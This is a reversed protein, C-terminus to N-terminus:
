GGGSPRREPPEHGGEADGEPAGAAFLQQQQWAGSGNGATWWAPSEADDAALPSLAAISSGEDELGGSAGGGSKGSGGRRLRLPRLAAGGGHAWPLAALWSGGSRSPPDGDQRADRAGARRGSGGHGLSLAFKTRDLQRVAVLLDLVEPPAALPLRPPPSPPGDEDDGGDGRAAPAAPAPAPAAQQAALADAAQLLLAGREYWARLAPPHACVAALRAGLCGENLCGRLWLQLRLADSAGPARAARLKSATRAGTAVRPHAAGRSELALLVAFASLGGRPRGGGRRADPRAAATLGHSLVAALADLLAALQHGEQSSALLDADEGSVLAAAAAVERAARAADTALRLGSAVLEAHATAAAAAAAPDADADVSTLPTAGASGGGDRERGRRGKIARRAARLREAARGGRRQEEEEEQQQPQQQQGGNTPAEAAAADGGGAQSQQSGARAAGPPPRLHRAGLHRVAALPQALAENVSESLHQGGAKIGRLVGLMADVPAPVLLAAMASAAADEGGGAASASGARAAASPAGSDACAAAAAPPAGGGMSGSSSFVRSAASGVDALLSSPLAAVDAVAAAAGAAAASAAAALRDRKRVRPAARPPAGSLVQIDVRVRGEGNSGDGGSGGSLSSSSSGGEPAGSATGPECTLTVALPRGPEDAGSAAEGGRRPERGRRRRGSGGSSDAHVSGASPTKRLRGRRGLRLRGWGQEGDGASDGPGGDVAAGSGGAEGRRGGSRQRRGRRGPQAARADAETQIHVPAAGAGARPSRVAPHGQQVLAEYPSAFKGQPACPPGAANLLVPPQARLVRQVAQRALAREV